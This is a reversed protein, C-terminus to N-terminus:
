CYMGLHTETLLSVPLDSVFDPYRAKLRDFVAWSSKPEPDVVNGRQKTM